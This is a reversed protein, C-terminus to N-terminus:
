LAAPNGTPALKGTQLFEVFEASYLTRRDAFYQQVGPLQYLALARSAQVKWHRSLSSSERQIWFQGEMLKWFKLMLQDFELRDDPSLEDKLQSGSDWLEATNPDPALIQAFSDTM